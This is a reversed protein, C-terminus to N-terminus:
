HAIDELIDGTHHFEVNAISRAPSRIDERNMRKVVSILTRTSPFLTLIDNRQDALEQREIEVFGVDDAGAEFCLDRLWRADLVRPSSPLRSAQKEQFAQVTPHSSLSTYAFGKRTHVSM